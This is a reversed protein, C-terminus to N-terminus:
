DDVAVRGAAAELELPEALYIDNELEGITWSELIMSWTSISGPDGPLIHV